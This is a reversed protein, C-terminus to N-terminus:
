WPAKLGAYLADLRAREAATAPVSERGMSRCIEVVALARPRANVLAEADSLAKDYLRRANTKDGALWHASALDAWIGPQEINMTAAGAKEGAALLEGARRPEGARAWLRALEALMPGKVPLAESSQARLLQEADALAARAAAADNAGLQEKVLRLLAEARQWGAIKDISRRAAEWALKRQEPVAARARAVDIYGITRWWIVDPDADADLARLRSMAGEFDGAKAQAAAAISAPRGSYQRDASSLMAGFKDAEKRDGLAAYAAGIHAAIRPNQWGTVTTRYTEARVLLARAEDARGAQALQIATEAMVVGRRWGEVQDIRKLAEDPSIYVAYELAVAEQAVGKDNPDVELRSAFRFACDFGERAAARGPGADAPTAALPGRALMSFALVWLLASARFRLRTM